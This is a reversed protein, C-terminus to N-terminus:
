YPGAARIVKGDYHENEEAEENEEDEDEIALHTIQLNLTHKEGTGTDSKNYGTVEALFHGHLFNGVKADDDECDIGLKELEDNTLSISLNYPYTPGEGAESVAPGQMDKEKEHETRAMHTMKDYM